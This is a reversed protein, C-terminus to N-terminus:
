KRWTTPNSRWGSRGRLGCSSARMLSMGMSFCSTSTKEWVFSTGEGEEKTIKGGLVDCYFKRINDRDQQPVIVSSHSGFVVNAM